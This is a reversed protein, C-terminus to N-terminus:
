KTENQGGRKAKWRAICIAFSLNKDKCSCEDYRRWENIVVGFTPKNKYNESIIAIYYTGHDFNVMAQNLDEHPNWDFLSCIQGNVFKVVDIQNGMEEDIGHEVILGCVEVAYAM